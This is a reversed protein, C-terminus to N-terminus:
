HLLIFGCQFNYIEDKDGTLFDWIGAKQSEHQRGYDQLCKPTMLQDYVSRYSRFIQSEERFVIDNVRGNELLMLPGSRPVLLSFSLRCSHSEKWKQDGSRWGTQDTFTIHLSTYHQSIQLPSMRSHNDVWHEFFIPIGLPNDWFKWFIFIVYQVLLCVFWCLGRYINTIRENNIAVFFFTSTDV